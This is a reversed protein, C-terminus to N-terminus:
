DVRLVGVRLCGLHDTHRRQYQQSEEVDDGRSPVHEEYRTGTTRRRNAGNNTDERHRVGLIWRTELMACRELRTRSSVNYERECSSLARMHACCM